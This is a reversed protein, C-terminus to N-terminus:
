KEVMEVVLKKLFLLLLLLIHILRLLNENEINYPNFCIRFFIYIFNAIFM